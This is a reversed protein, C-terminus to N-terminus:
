LEQKGASRDASTKVSASARLAYTPNMIGSEEKGNIRLAVEGKELKIHVKQGAKIKEALILASLPDEVLDSILRRLPRAGRAPNFSKEALFYAAQPQLNLSIKQDEVRKQLEQIQLAAIKALEALDLSRFVIVKDIRNLFEPKFKDEIEKLIEKKLDEYKLAWEGELDKTKKNQTAMQFGWKQTQSLKAAGINSTMVVITNKFNIVRGQADSLQGDELIQLLLNLADPHAKEIEDFLVVSYPQRRIKETLHGGEEYGIYGAPAGVLRSVNFSEHFESMDIRVLNQINGFIEQALIQALYTKGVGSPGLFIFSGSPRSPNALGAKMRRICQCINKIAEEQGIVKANLAKELNLLKTKESLTLSELPIGTMESVILKIEQDTIQGRFLQPLKEIKQKVRKIEKQLKVEAKKLISAERYNEARVAEQKAEQIKQLEREYKELNLIAKPLKVKMKERSAAEDILDIAKDPLARDAIYRHALYAAARIAPPTIHIQHYKEYNERVGELVEITEEPSSEKIIVPQFRRELAPDKEIHKQYETLTTAGICRLLGRALAPKLINATDLGGSAGGAGIVTHLEDIFLIINPDAEIQNLIKKLRSEFEGRFMTGAVLATLDLLLIRKNKLFPPVSDQVIRSALGEAIATKGVGAEGILVPNNKKRRGLINIIREIEKERGIVPDIDGAIAKQNLDTGFCHLFNDSDKKYKKGKNRAFPQIIQSFKTANELLLELHKELDDLDFKNKRLLFYAGGRKMKVLASLLHETGVFCHQGEYALAVAKAIAEKATLSFRFHDLRFQKDRNKEEKGGPINLAGDKKNPTQIPTKKYHLIKWALSGKQHILASLLHATTICDKNEQRALSYATKLTQKFQATFKNNIM